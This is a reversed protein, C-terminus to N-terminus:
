DQDYSMSGRTIGGEFGLGARSSLKLGTGIMEFKVLDGVARRVEVEGISFGKMDLSHLQLNRASARSVTCRAAHLSLGGTLGELNGKCRIQSEDTGPDLYGVRARRSSSTSM